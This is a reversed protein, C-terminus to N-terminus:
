GNLCCRPSIVTQNADGILLGIHLLKLNLQCALDLADAKSREDEFEGMLKLLEAIDGVMCLANFYNDLALVM